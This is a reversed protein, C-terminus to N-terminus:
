VLCVCRSRRPAQSWCRWKDEIIRPSSLLAIDAGAILRSNAIAVRHTYRSLFALVAQPDGFPRKAYVLRATRPPALREWRAPIRRPKDRGAAGNAQGLEDKAM